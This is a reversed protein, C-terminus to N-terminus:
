LTIASAARRSRIEDIVVNDNAPNDCKIYFLSAKGDAGMLEGMTELPILKRGGKGQQFLARFASRSALIM